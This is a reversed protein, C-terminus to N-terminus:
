VEEMGEIIERDILPHLKGEGWDQGQIATPHHQIQPDDDAIILDTKVTMM